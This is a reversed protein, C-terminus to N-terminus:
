PGPRETSTGPGLKRLRRVWDDDPLPSIMWVISSSVLSCSASSTTSTAVRPEPERRRSVPGFRTTSGSPVSSRGGRKQSGSRRSAAIAVPEAIHIEAGSMSTHHSPNKPQTGSSHAM